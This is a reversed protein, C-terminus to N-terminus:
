KRLSRNLSAAAEIEESLTLSRAGWHWQWDPPKETPRNHIMEEISDKVIYRMVTVSAEPRMEQIRNMVELELAPNWQPELWHVTATRFTFDQNPRFVANTTAVIVKISEDAQFKELIEYRVKRSTTGDIRVNKINAANLAEQAM